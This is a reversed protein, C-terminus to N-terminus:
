CVNNILRNSAKKIENITIEFPIVISKLAFDEIEKDSFEKYEKQRDINGINNWYFPDERTMLPRIKNYPFDKPLQKPKDAISDWYNSAFEKNVNWPSMFIYVINDKPINAANALEEMRQQMKGKLMEREWGITTKIELIFLNKGKFKVLIDPQIQGIKEEILVDFDMGLSLGLYLAVIDQFLDSIAMSKKRNFMVKYKWQALKIRIIHTIIAKSIDNNTLDLDDINDIYLFSDIYDSYYKSIDKHHMTSKKIINALMKYM